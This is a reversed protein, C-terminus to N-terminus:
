KEFFTISFTLNVQTASIDAEQGSSAVSALSLNGLQCRYECDHLSKLVYKAQEYGTCTVSMSVVRRYLGDESQTFGAFDVSYSLTDALVTNLMNVINETNDYPAIPAVSDGQAMITDLENEMMHMQAVISAETDSAAIADDRRAEARLIAESSPNWVSLYYVFGLFIIILVVLLTKERSTFKRSMM